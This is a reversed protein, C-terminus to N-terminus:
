ENGLILCDTRESQLRERSNFLENERIKNHLDLSRIAIQSFPKHLELPRIVMGHSRIVLGHSRTVLGHSRIACKWM